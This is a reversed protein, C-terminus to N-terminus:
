HALLRHDVQLPTGLRIEIYENQDVVDPGRGGMAPFNNDNMVAITQKDILEVDEITVFPFTFTAGFGGVNAPDPVGMRDVLLAKRLYGGDAVGRMDVLYIRKFAATAGQGGDREIVLFQHKNVAIMRYRVFGDAFQEAGKGRLTVTFVRLDSALGAAKDEAVVGELMPYLTRGDPSIAMGEFGKSNPLNPVQGATLTPNSPSTVGPTPIPAQLLRGQADAHLLYPGFEEGIWFTGDPVIQMSELDFDWGTLIRDPAPCSYGAPLSTAAACGGDRWITWPVYHNPDSLNFVQKVFTTSGTATDPRILHVALNFDQSNVQVGYGNDAMVLYSGDPNRHTGSFGQVPQGPYPAPIQANGTTWHGSTESGPVYTEAPLISRGVLTAPAPDPIPRAASASPASMAIAALSLGCVAAAMTTRPTM